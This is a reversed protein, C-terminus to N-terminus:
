ALWPIPKLDPPLYLPHGPHGKQTLHLYHLSPLLSRVQSAQRQAIDHTQAGWAAVLLKTETQAQLLYETNLPGIPDTAALMDPPQTARFAFLNVMVLGGYGWSKAFQICRRITPDDETATATSPNLGVFGVTPGEDWTRTLWYRYQQCPSFVATPAPLQTQPM